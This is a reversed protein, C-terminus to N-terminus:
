IGTQGSDDSGGPLNQKTVAVENGYNNMRAVLHQPYYEKIAVKIELREDFGLYTIGFGGEGIVDMVIYRDDLRSGAKLSYLSNM